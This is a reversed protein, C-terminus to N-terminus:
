GLYFSYKDYQTNMGLTLIAAGVRIACLFGSMFGMLFYYSFKQQLLLNWIEGLTSKFHKILNM